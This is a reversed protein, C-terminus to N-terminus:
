LSDVPVKFVYDLYLRGVEKNSKDLHLLFVAIAANILRHESWFPTEALFRDVHGRLQPDIVSESTNLSNGLKALAFMVEELAAQQQQNM